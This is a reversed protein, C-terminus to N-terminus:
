HFDGMDFKMFIRGAPVASVCDCLCFSPCSSTLPHEERNIDVRKCCGSQHVTVEYCSTGLIIFLYIYKNIQLGPLETLIAVSWPSSPVPDFALPSSIKQKDLGARPGWWAEGLIIFLYIYKNIQLGPLETLIAVSRPPPRDPISLRHPRSKRSTWVPGQSGGLRRYLPYRTKGPPLTRGPRAASWEVGELAATM